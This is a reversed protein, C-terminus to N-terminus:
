SGAAGILAALFLGFLAVMAAIFVIWLVLALAFAIGVLLWGAGIAVTPVIQGALLVHVWEPTRRGRCWLNLGIGLVGVALLPWTLAQLMGILDAVLDGGVFFFSSRRVGDSSLMAGLLVIAVLGADAVLGARLLFASPRGGIREHVVARELLADLATRTPAGIPTPAVPAVVLEDTM